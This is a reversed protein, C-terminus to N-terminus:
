KGDDIESTVLKKDDDMDKKIEAFIAKIAIAESAAFDSLRNLGDLYSKAIDKVQKPM